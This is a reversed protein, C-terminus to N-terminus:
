VLHLESKDVVSDVQLDAVKIVVPDADGQPHVRNSHHSSTSSSSKITALSPIIKKRNPKPSSSLFVPIGEGNGDIMSEHSLHMDSDQFSTNTNNRKIVSSGFSADSVQSGSQSVSRM